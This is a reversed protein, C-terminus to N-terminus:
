KEDVTKLVQEVLNKSLRFGIEEVLQHLVPRLKSIYGKRKFLILIGVLGTIKIGKEIAVSRGKREDIILLDANLEISLLIAESEGIDLINLLEHNSNM